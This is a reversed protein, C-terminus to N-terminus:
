VDYLFVLYFEVKKKLIGQLLADENQSWIGPRLTGSKNIENMKIMIQEASQEYGQSIIEYDQLTLDEINKFNTQSYTATKSFIEEVQNKKWTRHYKKYNVSNATDSSPQIPQPYWNQQYSHQYCQNMSSLFLALMQNPDM